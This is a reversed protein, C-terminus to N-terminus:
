FFIRNLLFIVVISISFTICIKVIQRRKTGLAVYLAEINKKKRSLVEDRTKLRETEKLSSEKFRDIKLILELDLNELCKRSKSILERAEKIITGSKTKICGCGGLGDEQKCKAVHGSCALENAHEILCDFAKVNRTLEDTFNPECSGQIKVIAQVYKGCQWVIEGHIEKYLPLFARTIM